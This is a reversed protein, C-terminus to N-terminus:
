ILGDFDTLELLFPIEEGDVDTSSSVPIRQEGYSTRAASQEAALTEPMPERSYGTM